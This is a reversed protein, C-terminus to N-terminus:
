PAKTVANSDLTVQGTTGFLRGTVSAGTLVRVQTQAFANGFFATNTGVVTEGATRWYVNKAQAGNDLSISGGPAGTTLTGDTTFIWVSTPDNQADLHLTGTTITVNGATKYVGRTLTLNGLEIPCVQTPATPNPDAALFTYAIGLDTRAQNLFAITSAFPAPILAPDTDDHAYSLGNTLENFQGPNAGPTFGAYYSRAQDMIGLDGNAIHSGTTTTIAQSALIVFGSLQGLPPATPNVVLVNLTAIGTKGGFTATITSSGQTVGTALGSTGLFNPNMTAVGISVSAWTVLANLNASSGDNYIGLATFQSTNGVAVGAAVPTVTISNLVAAATVTLTANGTKGGFSATIQSQGPNVVAALGSTALFNANMTAVSTTVSAWTASATLDRTTGNSYTGMATFQSYRGTVVSPALPTVAISNLTAASVTLAANGTKGALTAIIATSGAAVGTVQGSTALLSLNMTAIGTSGSAWTVSDTIDATTGNNYTGLATLQSTQGIVISPAAPAVAISSLAAATVLITTNGTKGGVTATITVSGANVGTAVGANNVNAISNDGSAWTVAATVDASTGDNYVGTATLQGTQGKVITSTSPSVSISNLGAATVVLTANGTKGGFTASIVSQGAAVGTSLGGTIAGDASMGAVAPTASLWSASATLDQSTGDSYIGLATFQNTLGQVISPRAGAVTISNLTAPTMTLNTSTTQGNFTATIVSTGVAVGTAVGRSTMTALAADSTSWTASATLDRSTGDSYIGTATFQKTVAVPISLNAPAVTMSTLTPGNWTGGCGAQLVPLLLAFGWMLRKAHSEIKKMQKGREKNNGNGATAASGELTTLGIGLPKEPSPRAM